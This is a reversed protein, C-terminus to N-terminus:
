GAPPSQGRPQHLQAQHVFAELRTRLHSQEQGDFTLNLWPIGHEHKVQPSVSSVMTGPMCSFPMVNIIGDFGVKAYDIAKGVTLVPEGRYAESIYPESHRVVRETMPEELEWDGITGAFAGAARHEDRRLVYRELRTRLHSRWERRLRTDGLKKYHTYMLWEATPAVRVEAGLEELLRVVGANSFENARVYIEGVVGILPRQNRVVPIRRF